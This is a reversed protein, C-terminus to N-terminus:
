NDPEVKTRAVDRAVFDSAIESAMYYRSVLRQLRRIWNGSPNSSLHHRSKSALIKTQYEVTWTELLNDTHEVPGFNRFEQSITMQRKGDASTITFFSIPGETSNPGLVIHVGKERLLKNAYTRIRRENSGYKKLYQVLAILLAVIISCGGLAFWGMTIVGQGFIRM